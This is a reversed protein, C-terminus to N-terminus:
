EKLSIKFIMLKRKQIQVKNNLEKNLKGFIENIEHMITILIYSASM